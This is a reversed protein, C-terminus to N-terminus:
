YNGGWECGYMKSLKEARAEAKARSKFTADVQGNGDTDECEVIYETPSECHVKIYRVQAAPPKAAILGKAITVAVVDYATVTNTIGPRTAVYRVRVLEGKANTTRLIDVVTCLMREGSNARRVRFQTGVPYVTTPEPIPAMM